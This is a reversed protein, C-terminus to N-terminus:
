SQAACNQVIGQQAEEIRSQREEESMIRETGDDGRVRIRDKASLQALVKRSKQCNAARIRAVEEQRATEAAQLDQLMDQQTKNLEQKAPASSAVPAPRTAASDEGVMTPGGAITTLHQASVDKPKLQTFNVVGNEDVWRYIEEAQAFGGGLAILLLATAPVLRSFPGPSRTQVNLEEDLDKKVDTCELAHAAALCRSAAASNTLQNETENVHM